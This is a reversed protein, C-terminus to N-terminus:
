IWKKRKWLFWVTVISVAALGMIIYFAFELEALPITVNM